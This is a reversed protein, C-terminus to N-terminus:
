EVILTGHMGQGSAKDYHPACYFRYTGPAPATFVALGEEGAPMPSASAHRHRTKLASVPNGASFSGCCLPGVPDLEPTDDGFRDGCDM